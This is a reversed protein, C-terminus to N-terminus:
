YDDLFTHKESKYYGLLTNLYINETSKFINIDINPNLLKLNEILKKIEERKSKNKNINCGCNNFNLNNYNVWNIIDKEKVLYLPRILEMGKFNKSKLKPLMSGFNGSYFMNLLVTEIVDDFHHGLAIKNCGLKKAENYLYGRRKRACYYCANKKDKIENFINTKFLNIKLNFLTSNKIILEKVEKNYGPDMVINKIEFNVDYYKRFEELILSLLFSDKGGSICVAIVDNDKILEYEKIAKIAKNFINKRYTKVISRNIDKLDM